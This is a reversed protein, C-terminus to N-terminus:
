SEAPSVRAWFVVEYEVEVYLQVDAISISEGVDQLNIHWYFGRTPETGSVLGAYDVSGVIDAAPAGLIRSTRMHSDIRNGLQNSYHSFFIKQKGYPLEGVTTPQYANIDSSNITPCLSVTMAQVTASTSTDTGRINCSSAVVQFQSYLAAWQDYGMPQHGTGTLDPDYINNGRYVYSYVSGSSTTPFLEDRYKMKVRMNDPTLTGLYIPM